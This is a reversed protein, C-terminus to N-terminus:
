LNNPFPPPLMVLEENLGSHIEFFNDLEILKAEIMELLVDIDCCFKTDFSYTEKLNLLGSKSIKLDNLINMCM